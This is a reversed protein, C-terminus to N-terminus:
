LSLDFFRCANESTYGAVDEPDEGRIGAMAEAVCAVYAPENRKGRHPVPALYPGDTEVMLKDRPVRRVLERGDYNKFTIIGTFSVMWDVELAARLLEHGGSFCHLVGQVRGGWERLIRATLDDASRSHVVVPLGLEEALRLHERFLEEQRVRPSHDYFFDLGTEGVAVIGPTKEALDSISELDGDEASGAEHPHVGATGWLRPMEESQRTAELFAVVRSADARDSAVSLVAGVGAARARRLVDQRDEEFRDDTLHCHSDILM